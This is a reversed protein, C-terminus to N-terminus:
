GSPWLEIRVRHAVLMRQVEERQKTLSEGPNRIGIETVAIVRGLPWRRLPLELILEEIEALHTKRIADGGHGLVLEFGDSYVVIYPNPWEQASRIRRIEAHKPNPVTDLTNQKKPNTQNNSIPSPHNVVIGVLALAVWCVPTSLHTAAM